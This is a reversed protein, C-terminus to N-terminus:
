IMTLLSRRFDMRRHSSREAPNLRPSSLPNTTRGKLIPDLFIHNQEADLVKAAEEMTPWDSKSGMIIGVQIIKKKAM